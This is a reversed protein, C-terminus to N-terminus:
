RSTLPWPHNSPVNNVSNLWGPPHIMPPAALASELAGLDGAGGGGGRETLLRQHLDLGVWTM